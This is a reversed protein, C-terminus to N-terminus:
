KNDSNKTWQIAQRNIKWLHIQQEQHAYKWDRDTHVKNTYPSQTWIPAAM